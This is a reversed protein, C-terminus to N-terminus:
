VSDIMWGDTEHQCAKRRKGVRRQPVLKMYVLGYAKVVKMVGSLQVLPLCSSGDPRVLCALLVRSLHHPPYQLLRVEKSIGIRELLTM